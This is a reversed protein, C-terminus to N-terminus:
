RREEARLGNSRIVDRYWIASSKLTRELTEYDVWILGFRKTMGHAWEFNDLLSWAFYGKLPVGEEIARHAAAIHQQLYDLRRWDRVVGDSDPGTDYAAGNETVYFDTGEPYLEALERLGRTLSEPHVEWGMETHEDNLIVERPENEEEPIAESRMVGRSYFNVGVFDIPEAITELDGEQLWPLEDSPLDGQEVLMDIFEMPYGEGAIPEHYWRNWMCDFFATARADAASSSAPEAPVCQLAAGVRAGPVNERIVRVARGHSVLMHHMAALADPWSERGPAHVGELYGLWAAVSPENHTMWLDVRDGLAGTIADTYELFADITTREPWGGEDELAQPLDWHYLTAAPKIGAELLADVLRSYWDIGAQNVRGRGQPVIRPWAISFRYADLGLEAMLQVDHRWLQYHDCAVSGDDGDDIRDPDSAFTDWISPGRGDAELAGEIQFASTAAGWLFDDPFNLFDRM